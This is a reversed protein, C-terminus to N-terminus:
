ENISEGVEGFANKFRKAINKENATTRVPLGNEKITQDIFTYRKEFPPHTHSMQSDTKLLSQVRKLVNKLSTPNYGAAAAYQVGVVDADFEAEQGIGKELLLKMGQQVAQALSKGIDSAGRSLIRNLNEGTSVEKKPMIEKYMHKRNIHAIEHALITALESESKVNSLLGKTIFVYGGPTAFANMEDTDLIEFYFVLEARGFQKALSTGLTKVYQTKAPEKKYVGYTGLIKAAISKGVTIEDQLDKISEKQEVTLVNDTNAPSDVKQVVSTQCSAQMLFSVLISYKLIKSVMCDM